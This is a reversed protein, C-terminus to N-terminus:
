AAGGAEPENDWYGAYDPSEDLRGITEKCESALTELTRAVEVRQVETMLVCRPRSGKQDKPPLTALLAAREAIDAKRSTPVATV